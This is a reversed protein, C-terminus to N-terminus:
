KRKKIKEKIEKILEEPKVDTKLKKEGRYRIAITGKEEEKDGITIIVPIKNIEATRVKDNVTTSSFDADIRIEPIEEAIKIILKKCAEINRDTFSLVRIQIPSLWIPLNGNTHELLIGIFREISGYIANHLM